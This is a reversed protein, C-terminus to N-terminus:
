RARSPEAGGGSRDRGAAPVLEAGDAGPRVGPRYLFEVEASDDPKERLIRFMPHAPAPCAPASRGLMRGGAPCFCFGGRPRWRCSEVKLLDNGMGNFKQYRIPAVFPTDLVSPSSAFSLGELRSLAGRREEGGWLSPACDVRLGARRGPESDGLSGLGEQDRADGRGEGPRRLAALDAVKLRGVGHEAGVSGGLAHVLDHVARKVPERLSEYLKRSRGQPPFVNYHLNGDGLHGFCNIRLEPDLAAVMPGGRAVFEGLRAPPLSIDHSSIAGVLRNAEPIAERVGWFVARQAESQAVLVDEAVGAELAAALAAELRAGTGAGAADASEVLVRWGGAMAPPQPVSPLVEALFGLGQVSMLEFASITGGLRRRLRM